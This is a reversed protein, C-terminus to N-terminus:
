DGRSIFRHRVFKDLADESSECCSGPVNNIWHASWRTHLDHSDHIACSHRLDHLDYLPLDNLVKAAYVSPSLPSAPAHSPYYPPSGTRLTSVCIRSPHGGCCSHSVRPRAVDARVPPQSLPVLLSAALQKNKNARTMWATAFESLSTKRSAESGEGFLIRRPEPASERDERLKRGIGRPPANEIHTALRAWCHSVGGM